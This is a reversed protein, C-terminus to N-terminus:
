HEAPLWLEGDMLANAGQYCWTSSQPEAARHAIFACASESVADDRVPNSWTKISKLQMQPTQDVAASGLGPILTVSLKSKKRPAGEMGQAQTPEKSTNCQLM